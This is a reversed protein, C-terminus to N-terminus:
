HCRKPSRAISLHTAAKSVAMGAGELREVAQETGPGLLVVHRVGRSALSKPMM